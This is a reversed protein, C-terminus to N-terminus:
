LYNKNLNAILYNYVILEIYLTCINVTFSLKLVYM